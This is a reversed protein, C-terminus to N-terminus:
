SLEEKSAYHVGRPTKIEFFVSDKHKERVPVYKKTKKSWYEVEGNTLRVDDHADSLVASLTGKYTDGLENVFKVADGIRM